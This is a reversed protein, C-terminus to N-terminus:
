AGNKLKGNRRKQKTKLIGLRRQKEVLTTRGIKLMEATRTKDNGYIELALSIIKREMHELFIDLGGMRRAMILSRKAFLSM